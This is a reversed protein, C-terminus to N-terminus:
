ATHINVFGGSLSCYLHISLAKGAMSSLGACLVLSHKEIFIPLEKLLLQLQCHHTKSHDVM